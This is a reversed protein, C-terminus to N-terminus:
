LKFTGRSILENSFARETSANGPEYEDAERGRESWKKLEDTM